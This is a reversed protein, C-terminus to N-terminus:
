QARPSALTVRPFRVRYLANEVLDDNSTTHPLGLQHWYPYPTTFVGPQANGFSM